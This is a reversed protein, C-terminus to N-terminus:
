TSYKQIKHGIDLNMVQAPQMESETVFSNKRTWVDGPRVTKSNVASGSLAKWANVNDANVREAMKVIRIM